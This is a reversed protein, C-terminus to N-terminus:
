RIDTETFVAADGCPGLDLVGVPTSVLVEIPMRLVLQLSSNCCGLPPMSLLQLASEVQAFEVAPKVFLPEVVSEEMECGSRKLGKIKLWDSCCPVTGAKRLDEM